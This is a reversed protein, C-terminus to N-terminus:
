YSILGRSQLESTHEESRMLWGNGFKVSLSFRPFCSKRVDSTAPPAFQESQWRPGSNAFANGLPFLPTIVAISPPVSKFTIVEGVRRSRKLGFPCNFPGSICLAEKVLM